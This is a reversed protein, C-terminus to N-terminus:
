GSRGIWKSALRDIVEHSRDRDGSLSGLMELGLFLAIVAYAAEKVPLRRRVAAPIAAHIAQEAVELWPGIRQAVEHGLDRDVLGGTVLEAMIKTHGSEHDEHHLTRGMAKVARIGRAHTLAERYAALRAESSSDLVSLLLPNLGGFHYSILGQNCEARLAIARTTATAFGDEILLARTAQLLRRRTDAADRPRRSAKTTGM